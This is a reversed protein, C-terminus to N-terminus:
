NDKQHNDIDSISIKMFYKLYLLTIYCNNIQVIIKANASDGFHSVQHAYFTQNQTNSILHIYIFFFILPHLSVLVM